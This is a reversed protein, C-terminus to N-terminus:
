AMLYISLINYYLVDSFIDNISFIHTNNEYFFSFLLNQISHFRFKVSILILHKEGILTNTIRFIERYIIDLSVSSFSETFNLKGSFSFPFVGVSFLRSLDTLIIYHLILRRVVRTNSFEYCKFKKKYFDCRYSEEERSLLIKVRFM